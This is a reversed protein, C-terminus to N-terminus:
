FSSNVTARSTTGSLPFAVIHRSEPALTGVRLGCTGTVRFIVPTVAVRARTCSADPRASVWDPRAHRCTSVKQTAGVIYAVHRVFLQPVNQKESALRRHSGLAFARM